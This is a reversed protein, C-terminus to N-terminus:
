PSLTFVTNTFLEKRGKSYSLRLTTAKKDYEQYYNLFLFM